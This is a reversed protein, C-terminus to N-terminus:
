HISSKAPSDKIGGALNGSVSNDKAVIRAQNEFRIGFTQTKHRQTDAARLNTVRGTIDGSFGGAFYVGERQGGNQTVPLTARLQGNDLSEGGRIEVYSDVNYAYQGTAASFDNTLTLRTTSQFSAVTYVAGGIVIKTGAPWVASFTINAGGPTWDVITSGTTVSVRGLAPMVLIVGGNHNTHSKDISVGTSGDIKIGDVGNYSAISNSISIEHSNSVEIGPQHNGPTEGNNNAIVASLRVRKSNFIDFGEGNNANKGLGPSANHGASVTGSIDIDSSDAAGTSETLVGDCNKLGRIVGGQLTSNHSATFTIGGCGPVTSADVDRITPDIINIFTSKNVGILRIGSDGAPETYGDIQPSIIQGHTSSDILIPSAGRATISVHRTDKISFNSVTDYKIHYGGGIFTVDEVQVNSTGHSFIEAGDSPPSVQRSALTCGRVRTNSQQRIGAISSSLTLTVRDGACVLDHNSPLLVLESITGSRAVRIEGKAPGLEANAAAIQAGLDNGPQQDAFIVSGRGPEAQENSGSMSLVNRLSTKKVAGPGRARAFTVLLVLGLFITGGSCAM